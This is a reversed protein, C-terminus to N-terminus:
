PAEALFRGLMALGWARSWHAQGREFATWVDAPATPAIWGQAALGHLGDQV